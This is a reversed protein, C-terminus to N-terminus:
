GEEEGGILKGNFLNWLVKKLDDGDLVHEKVLNLVDM